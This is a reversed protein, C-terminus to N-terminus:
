DGATVARGSPSGLPHTYQCSFRLTDKGIRETLQKVIRGDEGRNEDAAAGQRLVHDRLPHISGRKRGVSLASEAPVRRGGLWLQVAIGLGDFIEFAYAADGVPLPKGGLALCARRFAPLENQFREAWPDHGDELLKQHFQLGFDQMAKWRGSVHRDERSDCILDLLTMVEEYSNGDRWAGDELRQIDGTKRSVRYSQGFFTTYLYEADLKANLKKALAEADYTLFCAKAQQAQILYNDTRAM